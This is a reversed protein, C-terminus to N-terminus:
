FFRLLFFIEEFLLLVDFFLVGCVGDVGVILCVFFFCVWRMVICVVCVCGSVCVSLMMLFMVGGGDVGDVCVSLCVCVIDMVSLFLFESWVNGDMVFMDLM